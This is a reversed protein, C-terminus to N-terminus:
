DSYIDSPASVQATPTAVPSDPPKIQDKELIIKVSYGTLILQKGQMEYANTVRIARRVRDLQSDRLESCSELTTFASVLRYRQKPRTFIGYGFFSCDTTRVVLSGWREDFSVTIPAISEFAIKEGRRTIEIVRWTNEVLAVNEGIFTDPLSVRLDPVYLNAVMDYTEAAQDYVMRSLASRACLQTVVGLMIIILSLLIIKRM